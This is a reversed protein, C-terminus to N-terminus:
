EKKINIGGLNSFVYIDRMLQKQNGQIIIGSKLLEKKISDDTMNKADKVAQDVKKDKNKKSPSRLYIRRGRTHRKSLRRRKSKKSKNQKPKQKLKPKAKPKQKPKPKPKGGEKEEDCKKNHEIDKENPKGDKIRVRKRKCPKKDDEKKIVNIKIDELQTPLERKQQQLNINENNLFKRYKDALPSKKKKKMKIDGGKIKDSIPSKM